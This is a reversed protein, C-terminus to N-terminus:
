ASVARGRTWAVFMCLFQVQEYSEIAKLGRRARIMAVAREVVSMTIQHELLAQAPSLRPSTTTAYGAPSSPAGQAAPSSPTACTSAPASATGSMDPSAVTSARLPSPPPRAAAASIFPSPPLFPASPSLAPSPQVRAAQEALALSPHPQVFGMKIAWACATLGARGIGGRCHILVNIGKLTYNNVLLDVQKDFLELSVPTFGDPMPLRIIDLGTELAIQRYTEWPVGLLALEVDDLCCVLCGVGEGRIRRLDTRLDRNVPGRGKVPGDMRLRKGPCSSLLVNGIRRDVSEPAFSSRIPSPVLGPSAPPSYALLMSPVDLNSSWGTPTRVMHQALVSLLEPPIFPSIIIPHTTSTKVVHGFMAADTALSASHVPAADVAPPLSLELREKRDSPVVVGSEVAELVVDAEDVKRRKDEEAEVVQMPRKDGVSAHLDAPEDVDMREANLTLRELETLSRQSMHLQGARVLPSTMAAKVDDAVADSSSTCTTPALSSDSSESPSPSHGRHCQFYMADNYQLMQELEAQRQMTFVVHKPNAWSQPQYPHPCGNPGYKALNYGSQPWQSCLRACETVRHRQAEAYDLTRARDAPTMRLVDPSNTPRPAASPPLSMAAPLIHAPLSTLPDSEVSFASAPSAFAAAPSQAPSPLELFQAPQATAARILPSPSGRLKPSFPKPSDGDKRKGFTLGIMGTGMAKAMKGFGGVWSKNPSPMLVPSDTASMDLMSASDDGDISVAYVSPAPTLTPTQVGSGFSVSSATTLSPVTSDSKGDDTSAQSAAFSVGSMSAVSVSRSMASNSVEPRGREPELAPSGLSEFEPPVISEFSLALNQDPTALPSGVVDGKKMDKKSSRRRSFHKHFGGGPHQPAQPSAHRMSPTATRQPFFPPPPTATAARSM